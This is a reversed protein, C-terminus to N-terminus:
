SAKFRNLYDRAQELLPSNPFDTILRNLLQDAKDPRDAKEYYIEALSFLAKDTYVGDEFVTLYHQFAGVAMEWNGAQSYYLPLHYLAFEYIKSQERLSAEKMLVIASDTYGAFYNWTARSILSLNTDGEADIMLSLRDLCDNIYVGDPYSSFLMNYEKRAEGYKNEFFKIEALLFAAREAIDKIQGAQTIDTLKAEADGFNAKRVDMEALKLQAKYAIPAQRMSKILLNFKDAAKDYDQLNDAYIEGATYIAEAKMKFRNNRKEILDLLEFATQYIGLKALSKAKYLTIEDVAPNYVNAMNSLYYDAVEIAMLYENSNYCLQVFKEIYFGRDGASLLSDGHKYNEFAQALKETKLYIDGLIIYYEAQGPNQMIAQDIAEIILEPRDAEDYINLIRWSINHTERPDEQYKILTLYESVAQFYNKQSIYIDSLENAFLRPNDLMNRARKFVSASENYYGYRIFYNALQAYNFDRNGALEFAINWTSEAMELSDCLFYAEGLQCTLSFNGPSELLQAEILEKLLSFKKLARYVRKKEQIIRPDNGYESELKDIVALAQEYNGISFMSQVLRLSNKLMEEQNSKQPGTRESKPDLRIQAQVAGFSLLTLTIILILPKRSM